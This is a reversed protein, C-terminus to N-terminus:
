HPGRRVPRTVSGHARANHAIMRGVAERGYQDAVRQRAETIDTVVLTLAVLGMGSLILPAAPIPQRATRDMQQVIVPFRRQVWVALMITVLGVTALVIPYGVDTKFVDFTLYTLYALFGILSAVLFLRRRLRLAAYAFMVSVGLTAHATIPRSREWYYFM